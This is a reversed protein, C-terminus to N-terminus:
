YFSRVEFLIGEYAGTMKNYVVLHKFYYESSRVGDWKFFCFLVRVGRVEDLLFSVVYKLYSEKTFGRWRGRGALSDCTVFILLNRARVVYQQGGTELYRRVIQPHPALDYGM